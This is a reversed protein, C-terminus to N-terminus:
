VSKAVPMTLVWVDQLTGLDAIDKNKPGELLQDECGGKLGREFNFFVPRYSEKGGEEPTAIVLINNTRVDGHVVGAKYFAELVAECRQRIAESVPQRFNSIEQNASAGNLVERRSMVHETQESHKGNNYIKVLFLPDNDSPDPFALAAPVRNVVVSDREVSAILSQSDETAALEGLLARVRFTVYGPPHPLGHPQPLWSIRVVFTDGVAFLGESKDTTM